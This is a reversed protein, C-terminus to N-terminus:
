SCHTRVSLTNKSSRLVMDYEKFEDAIDMVTTESNESMLSVLDPKFPSEKQSPENLPNEIELLKSYSVILLEQMLQANEVEFDRLAEWMLKVLKRKRAIDQEVKVISSVIGDMTHKEETKTTSQHASETPTQLAKRYARATKQIEPNVTM